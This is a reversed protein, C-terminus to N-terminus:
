RPSAPRRGPRYRREVEDAIARLQAPSFRGHLEAWNARPLVDVRAEPDDRQAQAVAEEFTM